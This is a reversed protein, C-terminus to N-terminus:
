YQTRPQGTFFFGWRKTKDICWNEKYLCTHYLFIHYFLVFCKSVNLIPFCLSKKVCCMGSFWQILIVDCWMQRKKKSRHSWSEKWRQKINLRQKEEQFSRRILMTGKIDVSQIDFSFQMIQLNTLKNHSQKVSNKENNALLWRPSFHLSELTYPVVWPKGTHSHLYLEQSSTKQLCLTINHQHCTQCFPHHTQDDGASCLESRTFLLVVHFTSFHRSASILQTSTLM